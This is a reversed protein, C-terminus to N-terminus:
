GPPISWKRTIRAQDVQMVATPDRLSQMVRRERDGTENLPVVEVVHWRTPPLDPSGQLTRQILAVVQDLDEWIQHEWFRHVTWGGAELALTQRRDRKVNESLKKAWFLQGTRPRVYHHPCGHWFCGDIFVAVRPGPFLIDPRGGPTRVNLRYRFGDAWLRRRLRMEPETDKGRIRAM